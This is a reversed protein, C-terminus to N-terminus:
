IEDSLVCNQQHGPTEELVGLLTTMAMSCLLDDPWFTATRLAAMWARSDSADSLLPPISKSTHRSNPHATGYCGNYM